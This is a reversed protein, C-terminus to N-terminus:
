RSWVPVDAKTGCIGLMTLYLRRRSTSTEPNKIWGVLKDHPM